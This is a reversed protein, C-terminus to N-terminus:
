YKLAWSSPSDTVDTRLKGSYGSDWNSPWADTIATESVMICEGGTSSGYPYSYSGRVFGIWYTDGSYIAPSGTPSFSAIDGDAANSFSVEGTDSGTVLTDPQDNAGDHTYLAVRASGSDVMSIEYHDLTGSSDPTGNVKCFYARAQWILQSGGSDNDGVTSFSGSSFTVTIAGDYTDADATFTDNGNDTVHTLGSLTYTNGANPTVTCTLDATLGTITATSTYDTSNCTVKDTGDGDTITLVLEQTAPATNDWDTGDVNDLNGSAVCYVIRNDGTARYLNGATCTDDSYTVTAPATASVTLDDVAQAVEQLTDDTTSLNGDFGSADLTDAFSVNPFKSKFEATTDFQNFLYDEYNVGDNYLLDSTTGKLNIEAGNITVGNSFTWTGTVTEDEAKQAYGSLDQDGTAGDAIGALKLKEDDTFANTDANNEYAVKIEADTMAEGDGVGLYSLPISDTAGAYSVVLSDEVIDINVASDCPITTTITSADAKTLVIVNSVCSGSAILETDRTIATPIDSDTIAGVTGDDKIVKTGDGDLTIKHYIGGQLAPIVVTNTGDVEDKDSISVGAAQVWSAGVM